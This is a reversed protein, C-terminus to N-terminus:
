LKATVAVLAEPFEVGYGGLANAKFAVSKKVKRQDKKLVRASFARRAQERCSMSGGQWPADARVARSSWAELSAPYMMMEIGFLSCNKNLNLVSVM